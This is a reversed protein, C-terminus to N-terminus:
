LDRSGNEDWLHAVPSKYKGDANYAVTYENEKTAVYRAISLKLYSGNYASYTADKTKSLLDKYVSVAENESKYTKNIYPDTVRFINSFDTTGSSSSNIVWATSIQYYPPFEADTKKCSVSTLIALFALALISLTKKMDFLKQM